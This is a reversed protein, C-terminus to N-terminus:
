EERWILGYLLLSLSTLQSVLRWLLLDVDPFLIRDLIVLLNTLTLGVFCLSSWFLLRVGNHAYARFLLLACLASTVTCLLYIATSM